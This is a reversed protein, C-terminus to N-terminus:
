TTLVRAPNDVLLARVQADSLGRKRLAPVFEDFLYTYGNYQGGAPEGPRFWGSDQSILLQKQFGAAILDMVADLHAASSGANVGDFELWAGARAARVHIRRDKENQAHVWVYAAPNVRRKELLALIQKAAEGNGTHIHLRLRTDKHCLIGAEILKVDIASLNGADVGLKVFAPRIGQDVGERAERIWRQAIDRPSERWAHEPVYKDNAAAYYGTNTLIHLGSAESLRHLLAVDRGIYDPTCEVLTRCGRAYVERLKPLAARFAEEPDYAAGTFNVLIHEHILTPGLERVPVPGRVTPVTRGEALAALSFCFQRRSWM